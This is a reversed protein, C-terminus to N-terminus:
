PIGAARKPSGAIGRQFAHCHANPMGPVVLDFAVAGPPAPGCGVAEMLNGAVIRLNASALWGNEALAWRAHLTKTM